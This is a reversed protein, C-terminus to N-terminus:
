PDAVIEQLAAFSTGAASAPLCVDGTEKRGQAHTLPSKHACANRPSQFRQTLYMSYDRKHSSCSCTPVPQRNKLLRAFTVRQYHLIYTKEHKLEWLLWFPFFVWTFVVRPSRFNSFADCLSPKTTFKSCTVYDCTVYDCTVYDYNNARFLKCLSSSHFAKSLGANGLANWLLLRHLTQSCASHIIHLCNSFVSNAM